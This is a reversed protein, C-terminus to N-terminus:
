LPQCLSHDLNIIGGFSPPFRNQLEGWRGFIHALHSYKGGGESFIPPISWWFNILGGWFRGSVGWFNEGAASEGWCIEMIQEIGGLIDQKPPFTEGWGKALHPSLKGGMNGFCPPSLPGDGWIKPPYPVITFNVM